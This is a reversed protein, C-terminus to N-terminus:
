IQLEPFPQENPEIINLAKIFISFTVAEVKKESKIPSIFFKNKLPVPKVDKASPAVTNIPENKIGPSILNKMGIDILKANNVDSKTKM